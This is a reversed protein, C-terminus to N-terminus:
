KNGHHLNRYLSGSILWPTLLQKNVCVLIYLHAGDKAQKACFKRCIRLRSKIRAKRESRALYSFKWLVKIVEQVWVELNRAYISTTILLPSLWSRYNHVFNKITNLPRQFKDLHHCKAAYDDESQFYASSRLYQFVELIVHTCKQRFM